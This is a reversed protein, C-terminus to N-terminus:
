IDNSRCYILYAVKDYNAAVYLKEQRTVFSIGPPLQSNSTVKESQILLENLMKAWKQTNESMRAFDEQTSPVAIFDPFLASLSTKGALNDPTPIVGVAVSKLTHTFAVANAYIFDKTYQPLANAIRTLLTAIQDFPSYIGYSTVKNPIAIASWNPVFLFETRRFIDPFLEAWEDRSHTSNALIYDELANKITDINIGANGYILVAWKTAINPNQKLTDHFDYELYQIHSEPYKGKRESLREFFSTVTQTGIMAKVNAYSQFFDDLRDIPPVVVCEIDPFQNVFSENAFWIKFYDGNDNEWLLWEPMTQTGSSLLEGSEINKIIGYFANALEIVLTRKDAPMSGTANKEYVWKAVDSISQYQSSTLQIKVGDALSTFALLFTDKHELDYYGIEKSFSMAFSSLEGFMGVQSPHNDVGEKSAIFGKIELKM